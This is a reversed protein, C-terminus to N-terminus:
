ESHLESKIEDWTFFKTKGAKYREIRRRVEAKQSESVDVDENSFSSWIKEMLLIKEAPSLHLIENINNM